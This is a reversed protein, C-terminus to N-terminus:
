GLVPSLIQEEVSHERQLTRHHHTCAAQSPLWTRMFEHPRSALQNPALVLGKLEFITNLGDTMPERLRVFM